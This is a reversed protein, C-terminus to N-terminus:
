VLQQEILGQISKLMVASLNDEVTRSVGDPVLELEGALNGDAQSIIACDPYLATFAAALAPTCILPLAALSIEGIRIFSVRNHLMKHGQFDIGPQLQVWASAFILQPDVQWEALLIRRNIVSVLETCREHTAEFNEYNVTESFIGPLFLLAGCDQAQMAQHFFGAFDASITGDSKAATWPYYDMQVISAMPKYFLRDAMQLVRASVPHRGSGEPDAINLVVSRFVVPRLLALATLATQAITDMLWERVNNKAPGSQRLLEQRLGYRTSSCVLVVEARPVEENILDRVTQGFQYDLGYLDCNIIVKCATRNSKIALARVLLDDHVIWDGPHIDYEGSQIAVDLAKTIVAEAYGASLGPAREGERQTKQKKPNLKMFSIIALKWNINDALGLKKNSIIWM